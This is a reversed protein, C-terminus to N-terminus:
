WYIYGIGSVLDHKFGAKDLKKIIGAKVEPHYSPGAPVQAYSQNAIVGAKVLQVIKAWAAAVQNEITSAGGAEVVRRADSATVDPGDNFKRVLTALDQAAAKDKARQKVIDKSM